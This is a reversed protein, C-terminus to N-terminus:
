LKHGFGVNAGLKTLKQGKDTFLVCKILYFRSLKGNTIPSIGTKMANNTATARALAILLMVLAEIRKSPLM